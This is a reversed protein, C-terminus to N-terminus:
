IPANIMKQALAIRSTSAPLAGSDPLANAASPGPEPGLETVGIAGLLQKRLAVFGPQGIERPRPLEIKINALVIGREIVLARDGLL